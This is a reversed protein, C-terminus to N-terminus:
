SFLSPQRRLAVFLCYKINVHQSLGYPSFSIVTKWQKWREESHPFHHIVSWSLPKQSEAISTSSETNVHLRWWWCLFVFWCTSIENVNYQETWTTLCLEVSSWTLKGECNKKWQPTKNRRHFNIVTSEKSQLFAPM